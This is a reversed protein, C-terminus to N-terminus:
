KSLQADVVLQIQKAKLYNRMLGGDVKKLKKVKVSRGPLEM